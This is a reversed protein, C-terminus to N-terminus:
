IFKYAGEKKNVFKQLLRKGNIEVSEVLNLFNFGKSILCRSEMLHKKTQRSKTFVMSKAQSNAPTLSM